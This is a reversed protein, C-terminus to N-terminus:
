GVDKKGASQLTKPDNLFTDDSCKIDSQSIEYCFSKEIFIWKRDTIKKFFDIASWM